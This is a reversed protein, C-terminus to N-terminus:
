HISNLRTSKRDLAADGVPVAGLARGAVVGQDVEVHGRDEAHLAVNGGPKTQKDLRANTQMKIRVVLDVVFVEVDGKSEAAVDAGTRAEPGVALVFEHVAVLVLRVRADAVAIGADVEVDERQAVVESHRWAIRGDLVGDASRFLM